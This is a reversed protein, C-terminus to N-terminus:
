SAKRTPAPELAGFLRALAAQEAPSLNRGFRRLCAADAAAFRPAAGARLAADIPALRALLRRADVPEQVLNAERGSPFTVDYNVTPGPPERGDEARAEIACGVGVATAAGWSWYERPKGDHLWAAGFPTAVGMEPRGVLAQLGVGCAVLGAALAVMRWRWGAPPRPRRAGFAGPVLLMPSLLILLLIWFAGGAPERWTVLVDPISALTAADRREFWAEVLAVGGAGLATLGFAILLGVAKDILAKQPTDESAADTM